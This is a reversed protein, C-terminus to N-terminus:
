AVEGLRSHQLTLHKDDKSNSWLTVCYWGSKVPVLVMVRDRKSDLPQRVVLKIVRGNEVEAEVVDGRSIVIAGILSVRKDAAREVAHKSYTVSKANCSIDALEPNTQVNLRHMM